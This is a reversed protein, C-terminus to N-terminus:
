ETPPAPRQMWEGVLARQEERWSALEGAAEALVASTIEVEFPGEDKGTIQAKLRDVRGWHDPHKRELYWALARWDARGAALIGAVAGAEAECEARTVAHFFQLFLLDDPADEGTDERDERAEAEERGRRLWKRGCSESLNAARCAVKFFNGARLSDCVREIRAPTLKSPRGESSSSNQTM